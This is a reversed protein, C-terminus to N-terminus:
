APDFDLDLELESTCDGVERMVLIGSDLGLRTLALARDIASDIVGLLDIMPTEKIFVGARRELELGRLCLRRAHRVSAHIDHLDASVILLLERFVRADSQNM